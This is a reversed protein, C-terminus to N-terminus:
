LKPETLTAGYIDFRPNRRMFVAVAGALNIIATQKNLLLSVLNRRIAPSQVNLGQKRLRERRNEDVHFQYGNIWDTLMTERDIKAGNVILTSGLEDRHNEFAAHQWKLFETLRLDSLHRRLISCVNVFSIREKRLIFLRIRQFLIDLEDQGPLDTEVEARGDKVRITIDCPIGDRMAKSDAFREYEDLFLQLTAAEEDSFEGDVIATDTADSGFTLHFRYPMSFLKSGAILIAVNVDGRSSFAGM